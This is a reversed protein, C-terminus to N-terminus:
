LKGTFGDGINPASGSITYRNGSPYININPGSIFTKGLQKYSICFSPVIVAATKVTSVVIKSSTMLLSKLNM